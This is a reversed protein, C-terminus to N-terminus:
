RLALRASSSRRPRPTSNDQQAQTGSPQRQSTNVASCDATIGMVGILFLLCPIGRYTAYNSQVNYPSTIWLRQGKWLRRTRM